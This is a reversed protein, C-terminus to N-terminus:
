QGALGPIMPEQIISELRYATKSRQGSRLQVVSAEVTVIVRKGIAARVEPLLDDSVSGYIDPGSTPELYFVRRSTRMGDLLGALQIVRKDLASADLNERLVDAQDSTLVSTSPQQHPTVLKLDLGSSARQVAKVIDSVASRYGTRQTLVADLSIDDDGNQPLLQLLEHVALESLSEFPGLEFPDDELPDPEPFTLYVTAGSQGVSVLSANDKDRKLSRVTDEGRQKIHGIKGAASQIANLVLATDTANVIERNTMSVSLISRSPKEYFKAEASRLSAEALREAWNGPNMQDLARRLPNSVM